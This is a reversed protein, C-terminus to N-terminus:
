STKIFKKKPTDYDFSHLRLLATYYVLVVIVNEVCLPHFLYCLKHLFHFYLMLNSHIHMNLDHVLKAM